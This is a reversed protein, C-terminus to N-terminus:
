KRRASRLNSNGRPAPRRGAVGVNRDARSPCGGLWAGLFQSRETLGVRRGIGFFFRWNCFIPKTQDFGGRPVPRRAQGNRDLEAAGAARRRRDEGLRELFQSRETLGVRWDWLFIM